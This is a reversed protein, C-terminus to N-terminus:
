VFEEVNTILGQGMFLAILQEQVEQAVQQPNSANSYVNIDGINVSTTIEQEKELMGSIPAAGNMPLENPIIVPATYPEYMGSIDAARGIEYGKLTQVRENMIKQAKARKRPDKENWYALKANQYETDYQLRQALQNQKDDETNMSPKRLNFFSRVQDAIEGTIDVISGTVTNLKKGTLLGIIFMLIDQIVLIPLLARVFALGLKVAGKSAMAFSKVSQIGFLKIWKVGLAWRANLVLQLLAHRKMLGYLGGVGLLMLIIPFNRIIWKVFPMAVQIIKVTWSFLTGLGAIFQNFEPSVLLEALSNLAQAFSKGAEGSMFGITFKEWAVKLRGQAVSVTQEIDQWGGAYTEKLVKIFKPVFETSALNGTRVFDNFQATTMKMAKAGIEFAGPIANGLQRRLEEMSVKGKSIMQELALLAGETQQTSAGISRTALLLDAYMGQIDGKGFGAMNAASYFNRYGKAVTELSVGMKFAQQEVFGWDQTSKTLGEISKQVLQLRSGTQIINQLTRISVYAGLLRMGYRILGNRKNMRAIEAEDRRKANHAYKDELDARRMRMRTDQDVLRLRQSEVQYAEKSANIARAHFDFGQKQAQHASRLRDDLEKTYGVAKQLGDNLDNLGKMDCNTYINQVLDEIYTAM